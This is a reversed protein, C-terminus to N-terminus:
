LRFVGGQFALIGSLLRLNVVQLSAQSGQFRRDASTPSSFSSLKRPAAYGTGAQDLGPPRTEGARAACGPRASWNEYTLCKARNDFTSKQLM